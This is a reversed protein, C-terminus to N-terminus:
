SSRSRKPSRSERTSRSTSGSGSQAARALKDLRARFVEVRRALRRLEGTVVALEGPTLPVPAGGQNASEQDAAEGSGGSCCRGSGGDPYRMAM